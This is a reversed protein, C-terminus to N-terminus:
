QLMVPKNIILDNTFTEKGQTANGVEVKVEGACVQEEPRPPTKILDGIGGQITDAIDAMRRTTAEGLGLVECLEMTKFFMFKEWTMWRQEVVPLGNRDFGLLCPVVAPYHDESYQWTDNFPIQYADKQDRAIAFSLKQHQKKHIVLVPDGDDDYTIFRALESM